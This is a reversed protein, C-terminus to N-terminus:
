RAASCPGTRRPLRPRPERRHRDAAGRRARLLGPGPPRGRLAPRRAPRRRRRAVRDLRRRRRDHARGGDPLPDPGRRGGVDATVQAGRRRAGGRRRHEDRGHRLHARRRPRGRGRRVRCRGRGGGAGLPRVAAPRGAAASAEVVGGSSQMVLPQPELRELYAALVPALYANAVTTSCREYERFEPLLECPCRCACAPCRRASRRAWAGSTSRPPPVLLAPLGRGGRGRRGRARAVAAECRDGRRAPRARRGPGDAGAGHVPARAPRAAAARARRPRLAVARNQRGIEIVDRFGETTVLATRAGRRELLANTAVTTGHALM